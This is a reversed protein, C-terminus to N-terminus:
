IMKAKGMLVIFSCGDSGPRPGYKMYVELSRQKVQVLFCVIWRKKVWEEIVSKQEVNRMWPFKLVAIDEEADLSNIYELTEADYPQKAQTWYLWDFTGISTPLCYGHDIPILWLKAMKKREWYFIKGAHRDANALRFIWVSIKHVEKTPFAALVLIRVAAMIKGHVDALFWNLDSKDTPHQVRRTFVQGIRRTVISAGASQEICQNRMLPKFVSVYKKGSSDLMLYAGGLNGGFVEMLIHRPAIEKDYEYETRYVSGKDENYIGERITERKAIKEKVYAVDRDREVHFTLEKGCYTKVNIVQLDSLWLDKAPNIRLKVSEISESAFIPM